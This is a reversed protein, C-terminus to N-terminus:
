KFGFQEKLQSLAKDPDIHREQCLNRALKEIGVNDGDKMMQLANNMVPNNGAQKQLINILSQQPNGSNHMMQMLQMPNIM